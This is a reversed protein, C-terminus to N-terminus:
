CCSVDQLGNEEIIAQKWYSAPHNISSLRM